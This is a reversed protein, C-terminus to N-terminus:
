TSLKPPLLVGDHMIYFACCLDGVDDYRGSLLITVGKSRNLHVLLLRIREASHKDLNKLPEDLILLRPSDMLAAALRLKQKMAPSYKSYPSKSVPDLGVMSMADSIQEVTAKGEISALILLNKFGSVQPLFGQFDMLFGTDEPFINNKGVLRGWVRIEGSNIDSFGAIAQFLTNKGSRNQGSIGVIQGAPVYLDVRDLLKIGSVTKSVNRVSVAQEM